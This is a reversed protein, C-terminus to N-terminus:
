SSRLVDLFAAATAAASAPNQGTVLLGDTETHVSKPPQEIFDAGEQTMRQQLSFPM